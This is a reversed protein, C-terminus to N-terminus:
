RVRELEDAFLRLTATPVDGVVTIWWDGRRQMLTHTAGLSTELPTAHRAADFPEIFVSVYTLGDSYITQLATISGADAPSDVDLMPRRVCSVLRFGPVAHRLSWGELDLRTHTLVPRLIRYGDLKNMPELVTQPQSRVDIAVDSFASSELLEGRANLVDSRLLLGTARDAWLRYGYRHADRPRLILVNAEYGAVRQPPRARVEYFDVIRDDSVQLLAPFSTLLDRQEILAVRQEPWLTRVEDNHRFVFRAEGDLSEIRELQNHGDNYHAIRASSVGGGASVIFTGQFNRRSAAAHIRMLWARVEKAGVPAGPEATAAGARAMPVFSCLTGAFALALVSAKLM